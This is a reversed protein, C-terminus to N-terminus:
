QYADVQRHSYGKVYEGAAHFTKLAEVQHVLDADRGIRCLGDPTEDCQTETVAQGGHACDRQAGLCKQAQQIKDIEAPDPHILGGGGDM